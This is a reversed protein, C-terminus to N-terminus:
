GKITIYPNIRIVEKRTGSQYDTDPIFVNLVLGVGGIGLTESNVLVAYSGGEGIMICAAKDFTIDEAPSDTNFIKGNFDIDKLLLGDPLDATFEVKFDSGLTVVQVAESDNSALKMYPKVKMDFAYGLAPNNQPSVPSREKYSLDVLMLSAHFIDTPVEGYEEILDSYSRNLLRLISTEASDGYIELLDNEEQAQLDDLRLQAKIKETDLWKM